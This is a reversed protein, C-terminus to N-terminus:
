SARGIKDLYSRGTQKRFQWLFDLQINRYIFQNYFGGYYKPTFDALGRVIDDPYVPSDIIEGNALVFRYNGTEPDVLDTVRFGRLDSSFVDSSWDSIRM